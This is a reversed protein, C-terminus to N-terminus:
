SDSIQHIIPNKRTKLIAQSCCLPKRLRAVQFVQQSVEALLDQGISKRALCNSHIPSNEVCVEALGYSGLPSHGRM